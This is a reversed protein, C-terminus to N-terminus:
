GCCLSAPKWRLACSSAQGDRLSAVLATASPGVCDDAMGAFADGLEAALVDAVPRLSDRSRMEAEPEKGPEPRGMHSAVVVRAGAASLQRLTPLAADIRERDAVRVTGGERSIPVNLDARVLVRQGHFDQTAIDLEPSLLRRVVDHLSPPAAM